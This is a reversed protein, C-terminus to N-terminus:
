SSIKSRLPALEACTYVSKQSLHKGLSPNGLEVICHRERFGNIKLGPHQTGNTFTNLRTSM